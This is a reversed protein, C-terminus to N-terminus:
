KDCTQAGDRLKRLDCGRPAAFAVCFHRNDIRGDSTAEAGDRPRVFFLYGNPYRKKNSRSVPISGAVGVKALHHEVASGSACKTTDCLM